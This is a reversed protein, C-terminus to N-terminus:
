YLTPLTSVRMDIDEPENGQRYSYVIQGDQPIRNEDIKLRALIKIRTTLNDKNSFGL